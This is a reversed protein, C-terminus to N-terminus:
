GEKKAFSHPTDFDSPWRLEGARTDSVAPNTLYHVGNTAFYVESFFFSGPGYKRVLDPFAEIIRAQNTSDAHMLAGAMAQAFSGGYSKMATITFYLENQSM